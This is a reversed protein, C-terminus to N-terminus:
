PVVDEWNLVTGIPRFMSPSRIWKGPPPTRQNKRSAAAIAQGDGRWWEFMPGLTVVGLLLQANSCFPLTALAVAGTEWVGTRHYDLALVRVLCLSLGAVLLKRRVLPFRRLLPHCLLSKRVSCRNEKRVVTTAVAVAGGVAVVM